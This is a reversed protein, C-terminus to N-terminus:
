APVTARLVLFIMVLGIAHKAVMALIRGVFAHGGIRLSPEVRQQHIYEGAVAGAKYTQLTKFNRDM